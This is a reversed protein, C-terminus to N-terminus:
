SSRSRRSWGCESWSRSGSRGLRALAPARSRGAARGCGLDRARRDGGRRPGALVGALALTGVETSVALWVQTRRAGRQALRRAENWVGRRLGIAAVLAFGLLLASLEGGVLVMRKSAVHGQSRADLLAADPATLEFTDGERALLAQVASERALVGAIQWIQLRAPDVPSIWTYTRFIGDFAPLHEFETASDGLLLM